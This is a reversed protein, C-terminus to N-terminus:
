RCTGAAPCSPTSRRAVAEPGVDDARGHRAGADDGVDVAAAPRRGLRDVVGRDDGVRVDVVAVVVGVLVADDVEEHHDEGAAAPVAARLEGDRGARVRQGAAVVVDPRVGRAELAGVGVRDGALGAVDALVLELVELATREPVGVRGAGRHGGRRPGVQELDEHADARVVHVGLRRDLLRGDDAVLVAVRQPQRVEVRQATALGVAVPVEHGGVLALEHVDVAALLQAPDHGLHQGCAGVPHLGHAVALEVGLADRPGRRGARGVRQGLRRTVLAHVVALGVDGRQRAALQEVLRDQRGGLAVPEPVGAGAVVEAAGRRLAAVEVDDSGPASFSGAPVVM